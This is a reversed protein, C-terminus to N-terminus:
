KGKRARLPLTPLVKGRARYGMCDYRELSPKKYGTTHGGHRSLRENQVLLFAKFTM